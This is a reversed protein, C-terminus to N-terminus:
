TVEFGQQCVALAASPPFNTPFNEIGASLRLLGLAWRLSAGIKIGVGHPEARIHASYFGCSVLPRLVSVAERRSIWVQPKRKAPSIKFEQGVLICSRLIESAGSEHDISRRGVRM